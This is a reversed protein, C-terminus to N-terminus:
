EEQKKYFNEAESKSLFKQYALCRSCILKRHPGSIVIELKDSGCKRCKM